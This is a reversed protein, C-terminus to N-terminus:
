SLALVIASLVGAAILPILIQPWPLGPVRYSEGLRARMEGEIRGQGSQSYAVAGSLFGLILAGWGLAGAAGARTLGGNLVASVILTLPGTVAAAAVGYLAIQALRAPVSQPARAPNM